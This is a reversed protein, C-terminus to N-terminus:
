QPLYNIKKYQNDISQIKSEIFTESPTQITTLENLSKSIPNFIKEFESDLKQLDELKFKIRLSSNLANLSRSKLNTIAKNLKNNLDIIQQESTKLTSFISPKTITKRRRNPKM